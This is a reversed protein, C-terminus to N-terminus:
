FGPPRGSPGGKKSRDEREKLIREYEVRQDPKLISLIKDQQDKNIAELEPQNRKRAEEYLARTEDYILGIQTVQSDTLKMREQFEKFRHKRFEEPSLRPGKPGGSHSPSVAYASYFRDGFVGLVAGSVFVLAVYALIAPRSLSM